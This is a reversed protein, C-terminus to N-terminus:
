KIARKVSLALAQTCDKLVKKNAKNFRRGTQRHKQSPRNTVTKTDNQCQVMAHGMGPKFLVEFQIGDVRKGNLTKGNSKLKVSSGQMALYGSVDQIVTDMSVATPIKVKVAEESQTAAAQVSFLMTAVITLITTRM